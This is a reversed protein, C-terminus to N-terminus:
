VLQPRQENKLKNTNKNIIIKDLTWPTEEHERQTSYWYEVYKSM